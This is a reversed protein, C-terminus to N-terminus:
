DFAVASIAPAAGYIFIPMNVLPFGTETVLWWHLTIGAELIFTFVVMCFLAAPMYRRMEEKKLFLTSAWALVVSSWLLTQNSM